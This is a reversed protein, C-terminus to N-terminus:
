KGTSGLMGGGRETEKLEDKTKVETFIAQLVPKIMGQAVRDGKNIIENIDGTNTMIIMIEGVFDSDISGPSNAVRLGTKFSVGGRPRMQIEYGFPIDLILGSRVLKTEGPKITYDEFSAFDFGAAEKSQYEPIVVSDDIRYIKVGVKNSNDDFGQIGSYAKYVDLNEM